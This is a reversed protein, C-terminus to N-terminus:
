IKVELITYPIVKLHTKLPVEREIGSEMGEQKQYMLGEVNILFPSVQQIGLDEFLSINTCAEPKRWM